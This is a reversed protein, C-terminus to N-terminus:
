DKQRASLVSATLAALRRAAPKWGFRALHLARGPLSRRHLHLTHLPRVRDAWQMKWDMTPGLFDFEVFGRRQLEPLLAAIIQHGPALKGHEEAYAIKVTFYRRAHGLALHAAIPQGDLDLFYLDLMGAGAADATIADYFARTSSDSAIATGRDGKWGSGELAYFQALAEPDATDVHRLTVRGLKDLQRARRRLERRFKGPLRDDLWEDLDAEAPPLEFWPSAISVETALARGPSAAAALRSLEGDVPVDCLEISTWGPEQLLRRWLAAAALAGEAGPARILEFRCSHVNSASRLATFPLGLHRRREEVLPLVAALRGDIRAALVVLTAEPTFAELYRRTWEPRQFPEPGAIDAWEAAHRDVLSLDGREIEVATEVADADIPGRSWASDPREDSLTRRASDAM